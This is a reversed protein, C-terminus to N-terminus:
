PAPQQVLIVRLSNLDVEVIVDQQPVGAYPPNNGEMFYTYTNVTYDGVLVIKYRKDQEFERLDYTTGVAIGNARAVTETSQKV